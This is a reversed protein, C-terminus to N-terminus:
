KFLKTRYNDLDKTRSDPAPNSEADLNYKMVDTFNRETGTTNTTTITCLSNGAIYALCMLGWRSNNFGQEQGCLRDLEKQDNKFYKMMNEWEPTVSGDDKLMGALIADKGAKAIEDALKGGAGDPDKLIENRQFRIKGKINM